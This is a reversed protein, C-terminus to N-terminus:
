FGSNQADSDFYNLTPDPTRQGQDATSYSDETTYCCVTKKDLSRATGAEAKRLRANPIVRGFFFQPRFSSAHIM